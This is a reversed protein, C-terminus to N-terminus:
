MAFDCVEEGALRAAGGGAREEWPEDAADFDDAAGHGDADLAGRREVVGAGRVRGGELGVGGDRRGIGRSRGDRRVKLRHEVRGVRLKLEVQAIDGLVREVVDAVGIHLELIEVELVFPMLPPPHPRLDEQLLPLDDREHQPGRRINRERRLRVRGMLGRPLKPNRIVTLKPM